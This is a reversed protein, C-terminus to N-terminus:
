LSLVEDAHRKMAEVEAENQAMSTDNIEINKEFCIEDMAYRKADEITEDDMIEVAFVKHITVDIEVWKSM